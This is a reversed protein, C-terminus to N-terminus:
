LQKIIQLEHKVLALFIDLDRREDCTEIPLWHVRLHSAHNLLDWDLRAPKGTDRNGLRGGKAEYFLILSAGRPLFTATMAGGGVATVFIAAQSAIEAQDHFSLKSMRHNTINLNHSKRLSERLLKEQKGFGKVRGATDSSFRSFVINYYPPPSGVSPLAGLPTNTSIGLNRLM